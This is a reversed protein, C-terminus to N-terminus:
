YSLGPCRDELIALLGLMTALVGARIVFHGGCVERARTRFPRRCVVQSLSIPAGPPRLAM